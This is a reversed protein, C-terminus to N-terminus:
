YKAVLSITTTSDLKRFTVPPLNLYSMSYGIKTSLISTMATVLSFEDKWRWDQSVKFNQLFNLDNKLDTSASIKWGYNLALQGNSYQNTLGSVLNENALGFAASTKLEHAENKIVSYGLGLDINTRSNFGTFPNRLYGVALYTELRETLNRTGKLYLTMQNAVTKQSASSTLYSGKFLAAWDQPKYNLETGVGLTRVQTNGSTMLYSLESNGSWISQAHSISSLFLALVMLKQM